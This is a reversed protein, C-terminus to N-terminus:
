GRKIDYALIRLLSMTTGYESYRTCEIGVRTVRSYWTNVIRPGRLLHYDLTCTSGQSVDRAEYDYARREVQSSRDRVSYYIRTPGLLRLPPQQLRRRHGRGPTRTCRLYVIKYFQQTKALLRRWPWPCYYERHGM